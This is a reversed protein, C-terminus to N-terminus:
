RKATLYTNPTCIVAVNDINAGQVTGSGRAVLCTQSEPHVPVTVNYIASSVMRARFVFSGDGALIVNTGNSNQLALPGSAGSVSGGISFMPDPGAEDVTGIVCSGLVLCLTSAALLNAPTRLRM